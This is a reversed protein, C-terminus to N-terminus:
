SRLRGEKLEVLRQGMETVKLRGVLNEGPSLDPLQFMELYGHDRLYRLDHDTPEDRVYNYVGYRERHGDKTGFNFFKLKDYIYYAMSYLALDDLM